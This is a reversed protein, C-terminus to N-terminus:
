TTSKCDKKKFNDKAEADRPTKASVFDCKEGKTHNIIVFSLVSIWGAMPAFQRPSEGSFLAKAVNFSSEQRIKRTWWRPIVTSSPSSLAAKTKRLDPAKFSVFFLLKLHLSQHMKKKNKGSSSDEKGFVAVECLKLENEGKRDDRIFVTHGQVGGGSCKLTLSTNNVFKGSFSSCKAFNSRNNIDTGTLHHCFDIIIIFLSCTGPMPM